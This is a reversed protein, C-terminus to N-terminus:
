SARELAMPPTTPQVRPIRYGKATKRAVVKGRRCWKRVTAPTVQELRAYEEVTDELEAERAAAAVELLEGACYDLVDAIADLRSLKRRRAAEELWRAALRQSAAVAPSAATM